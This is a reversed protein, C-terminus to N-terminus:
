PASPAWAAGGASGASPMRLPPRLPPRPRLVLVLVLVPVPVFRLRGAHPFPRHRRGWAGRVAAPTSASSASVPALAVAVPAAEGGRVVRGRGVGGSRGGVDDGVKDGVKGGETEDAGDDDYAVVGAAISVAPVPRPLAPTECAAIASSVPRLHGVFVNGSGDGSVYKVVCAANSIGDVGGDNLVRMDAGALWVVAGGAAPTVGPTIGSSSAAPPPFALIRASARDGSGLDVFVEFWGAGSVAPVRWTTFSSQGYGSAGFPTLSTLSVRRKGARTWLHGTVTADGDYVGSLLATTIEGSAASAVAGPAVGVCSEETECRYAPAYRLGATGPEIGSRTADTAGVSVPAVSMAGRVYGAPAFFEM